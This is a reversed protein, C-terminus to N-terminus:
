KREDIFRKYKFDLNKLLVKMSSKKYNTKERMAALIKASTPFQYNDYFSVVENDFDDLDIAYKVRKYAKRPSKFSTIISKNDDEINKGEACIRKVSAVSVCINNLIM